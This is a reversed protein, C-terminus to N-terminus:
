RFDGTKCSIAGVTFSIASKPDTQNAGEGGSVGERTPQTILTVAGPLSVEATKATTTRTLDANVLSKWSSIYDGLKLGSGVSQNLLAPTLPDTANSQTLTPLTTYGTGNWYAVTASYDATATAIISTAPKTLKCSATARTLTIKLIGQPASVTPFVRVTNAQATACATVTTDTAELFGTGTLLSALNPGTATCGIMSPTTGAATTDMSIMPKLPDLLLRSGLAGNSFRFGDNGAGNPIMAVVPATSTGASPLGNNAKASVQDVKSTGFCLYTCGTSPLSQSGATDSTPATDAPAVLNKVGGSIQEGLSTGASAASATSVTRSGTFLEGSLNVVGLQELLNTGTLLASSVRLTSAQAESTLFPAVASAKEVQTYTVTSRYGNAVPYFVAVTVGVQAAPPTDPRANYTASGQNRSDYTAIPAVAVPPTAASLFQTSIVMSFVGLGPSVVPNIVKRYLPGAPEWQCHTTGSPVFGSWSTPPLASLTASACSPGAPANTGDAVGGTPYYLDLVDKYDGAAKGVYFPLDRIKELQAQGVGKTQTIDRAAASARLGVILQPVVAATVVMFIALAM